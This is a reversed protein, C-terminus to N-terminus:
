ASDARQRHCHREASLRGRRIQTAGVSAAFLAAGYPAAVWLPWPYVLHATTGSVLAWVVVNISVASLWIAWLVKLTTPLDALVGQWRVCAPPALAPPAAEQETKSGVAPLDAHLPALDSYTAAQYALGVRDEFEDMMLRGDVLAGRLRDVVEQRDHDSARMKQRDDM